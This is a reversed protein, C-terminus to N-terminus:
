YSPMAEKPPVLLGFTKSNKASQSARYLEFMRIRDSVKLTGSITRSDLIRLRQSNDSPKLYSIKRASPPREDRTPQEVKFHGHGVVAERGDGVGQILGVQTKVDLMPNKPRSVSQQWALQIDSAIVRARATSQPMRHGENHVHTAKFGATRGTCMHALAASAPKLPDALDGGLVHVTPIEELGRTDLQLEGLLEQIYYDQKGNKIRSPDRSMLPWRTLVIDQELTTAAARRSIQDHDTKSVCDPVLGSRAEQPLRLILRPAVGCVFVAFEFLSRSDPDHRVMKHHEMIAMAALAAGFSFALVGDYPGHNLAHM